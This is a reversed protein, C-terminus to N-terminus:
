QCTDAWGVADIYFESIKEANIGVRTIAEEFKPLKGPKYTEIAYLFLFVAV